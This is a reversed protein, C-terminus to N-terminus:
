IHTNFVQIQRKNINIILDNYAKWYWSLFDSEINFTELNSLDDIGNQSPFFVM